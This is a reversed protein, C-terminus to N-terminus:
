LNVRALPQVNIEPTLEQFSLVPLDYLEMEILKRIYRRIDMSTILVPPSAHAALDGVTSKVKKVFKQTTNPDLALYSGASTQRIGNRITEEVEPALLYAPLVNRGASYKYSVYRRLSSRVYEVLLVSDKEKQGWEVLAEMIVRLNRISIDESVLRQLIETIKQVPLIRQVEKVLEGFRGEMQDLLYRTEQIGIFDQSYKRLVFALHYTLIQPAEMYPLGGKQLTERHDDTVWLPTVNPLFVEGQDFPINFMQLNEPKDRVLLYGSRLQGRAVPIEQLNILYTNAELMESYRLHIGPFPVGLDLYLARRIKLLEENLVAPQLSPQLNAAVDILLPVTLSFDEQEALKKRTAAANGSSAPAATASAMAPVPDDDEAAGGAALRQLSFGLGGMVLALILFTMTPFGPILGFGLSLAAGIMLAKPQAMVQVGIDSGLDSSEDTTVRTVIIGSTIAILLAPIQSILGDGVTLISYLQLAEGAAMGNQLTGITLGGLINVAIIILGAISDGKVFKMAGDMSGYLQSEKEVKSRRVRAQDMDIVGARMDGDISMQKGPMADLSFRASVEAVREAGKTIVMFQVITIILFVVIGVVLNGGVVFNGFTEVIQGADAQLLILRTTTISLALRFLTTLLLVAPFASFSLPSEIYVGIMLLILSITMNTAILADVLPTPMPLIIMFIVGVLFVAVTVDNRRTLRMLTRQIAETNM